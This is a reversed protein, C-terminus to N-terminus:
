EWRAGEVGALAHQNRKQWWLFACFGMHLMESCSVGDRKNVIRRYM